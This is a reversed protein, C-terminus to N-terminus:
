GRLDLLQGLFLQLLDNGGEKRAYTWFPQDGDHGSGEGLQGLSLDLAQQVHDKGALVDLDWLDPGHSAPYGQADVLRAQLSPIQIQGPDRVALKRAHGFLGLLRVERRISLPQCRGRM